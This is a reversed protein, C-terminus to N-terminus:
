PCAEPLPKILACALLRWSAIAQPRLTLSRLGYHLATRRQRSNFAWWGYKLAYEWRSHPNDQPRWRCGTVTFTRELGRRQWALTFAREANTHQQQQQRSGISQSHVRYQVVPQPLNAVAGVESLKLWLDLDCGSTFTNDYGGVQTLASKRILATPHLFSTHGALLLRQIESNETAMTVTTLLRGAEDILQFAGGVWVVDPHTQLFAYQQALRQPLAIDDADMVAVYDAHALAILRNRTVPIGRNDQAVLRIRRDRAAYAQLIGLSDDTSGDDIIVLEFNTFSQGLLSDLTAALYPANNHVALLVSIQPWGTSGTEPSRTQDATPNPQTLDTLGTTM